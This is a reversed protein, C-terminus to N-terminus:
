AADEDEDEDEEDDDTAAEKLALEMCKKIVAVDDQNDIDLSM